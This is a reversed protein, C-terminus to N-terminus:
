RGGRGGLDFLDLQRPGDEPDPEDLLVRPDGADVLRCLAAVHPDAEAMEARTRDTRGGREDADRFRDIAKHIEEFVGPVIASVPVPDPVDPPGSGAVAVAAEHTRRARGNAGRRIPRPRAADRWRLYGDVTARLSAAFDPDAAMLAEVLGYPIKGGAEIADGLRRYLDAIWLCRDADPRRALIRVDAGPDNKKVM